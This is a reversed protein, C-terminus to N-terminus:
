VHHCLPSLKRYTELSPLGTYFCVKENDGEFYDEEFVHSIQPLWPKQTRFMHECEETQTSCSRSYDEPDSQTSANNEVNPEEVKEEEGTEGSHEGENVM